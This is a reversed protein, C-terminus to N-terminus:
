SLFFRKISDAVPSPGPTRVSDAISFPIIFSMPKALVSILLILIILTIKKSNFYYYNIPDTAYNQNLSASASLTLLTNDATTKIIPSMETAIFPICNIGNRHLKSGNKRCFEDSNGISGPDIVPCYKTCITYGRLFPGTAYTQYLLAFDSFKLETPQSSSAFGLTVRFTM